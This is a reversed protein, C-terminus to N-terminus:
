IRENETITFRKLKVIANKDKVIRKAERKNAAKILPYTIVIRNLRDVKGLFGKVVVSYNKM